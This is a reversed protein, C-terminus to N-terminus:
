FNSFNISPSCLKVVIPKLGVKQDVDKGETPMLAMQIISLKLEDLLKGCQAHSRSEWSKRLTEYNRLVEPMALSM